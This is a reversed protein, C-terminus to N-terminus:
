CASSYDVFLALYGRSKLSSQKRCIRRGSIINLFRTILVPSFVEEQALEDIQKGLDDDEIMGNAAEEDIILEADRGDEIRQEM